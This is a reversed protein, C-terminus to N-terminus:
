FHCLKVKCAKWHVQTCSTFLFRSFFLKGLGVCTGKIQLTFQFGDAHIIINVLRVYPPQPSIGWMFWWKPHPRTLGNYNVWFGDLFFCNGGGFFFFSFFFIVCAVGGGTCPPRESRRGHGHRRRGPIRALLWWWPWRGKRAWSGWRPTSCAQRKSGHGPESPGAVLFFLLVVRFCKKQWEMNTWARFTTLTRSSLFHPNM